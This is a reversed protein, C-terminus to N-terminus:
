PSPVWQMKKLETWVRYIKKEVDDATKLAITGVDPDSIYAPIGSLTTEHLFLWNVMALDLGKTLELFRVLFDAQTKEGDAGSSSWGIETFALPKTVYQEVQAYYDDPIDAPSSFQRCPYTTLGILDVLENCGQLLQWQNGELLHDYSFVVLVHTEPSVSKLAAYAERLLSLYNALEDQHHFFYDNVENGLSFYEPKFEEAIGKAENRWLDRFISDSLSPTVGPPADIVYELGHAGQRVTAFNLTVFPRLGYVRVATIVRNQKLLDRQGIGQKEVWVMCVEAIRGTEEYAKILDDFTSNPAHAPNPVLGLPFHRETIPLDQGPAVPKPKEECGIALAGILVALCIVKWCARFCAPAFGSTREKM